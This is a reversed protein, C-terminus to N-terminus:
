FSGDARNKSILCTFQFPAQYYEWPLRNGSQDATWVTLSSFNGSSLQVPFRLTSQFSVVSNPNYNGLPFSYLLQGTSGDKYSSTVLSMYLVYSSTNSFGAANPALESVPATGNPPYNFFTSGTGFGLLNGMSDNLGTQMSPNIFTIDFGGPPFAGSEFAAPNITMYIEQTSSIGQLTFLDAAGTVGWDVNYPAMGTGNQERAILNLQYAVDLYGYLGTPIYYDLYGGGNFNISIRNNGSNIGPILNPYAVNPQSYAFSAQILDCCSNDPIILPPSMKFQVTYRDTFTISNTSIANQPVSFSLAIPVASARLGSTSTTYM